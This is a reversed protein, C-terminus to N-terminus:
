KGRNQEWFDKSCQSGNLYYSTNGNMWIVAPGFDRHLENKHNMWYYLVGIKKNGHKKINGMFYDILEEPSYETISINNNM